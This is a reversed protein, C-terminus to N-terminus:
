NPNSSKEEHYEEEVNVSWIGSKDTSGALIAEAALKATVMSHDQNNYRHM